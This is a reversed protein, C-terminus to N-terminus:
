SNINSYMEYLFKETDVYTKFEEFTCDRYTKNDNIMNNIKNNLKKSENIPYILGQVFGMLAGTCATLTRYDYDYDTIRYIGYGIGAGIMSYIAMMGFPLVLYIDPHINSQNFKKIKYIIYGKKSELDM